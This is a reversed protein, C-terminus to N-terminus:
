VDKTSTKAGCSSWEPNTQMIATSISVCYPTPAKKDAVMVTSECQDVNGCGDTIKWTVKHSINEANM